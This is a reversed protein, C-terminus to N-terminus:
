SAFDLPMIRTKNIAQEKEKKIYLILFSNLVPACVRPGLDGPHNVKAHLIQPGV